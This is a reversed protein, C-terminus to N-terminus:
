TWTWSALVQAVGAEVEDMAGWGGVTGSIGYQYRKDVLCLAPGAFIGSTVTYANATRNGWPSPPRNTHPGMRNATEDCLATQDFEQKLPVKSVTIVNITTTRMGWTGSSRDVCWGPPVKFTFQPDTITDGGTCTAAPVSSPTTITTAGRPTLLWLAAGGGALLLVGALLGILVAVGVNSRPAPPPPPPQAPWSAGPGAQHGHPHQAM